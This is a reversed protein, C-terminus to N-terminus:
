LLLAPIPAEGESGGHTVRFKPHPLSAESNLGSGSESTPLRGGREPLLGLGASSRCPRTSCPAWFGSRSKAAQSWRRTERSSFRLEMQKVDSAQKSQPCFYILFFIFWYCDSLCCHQGLLKRGRLALFFDILSLVVWMRLGKPRVADKGEKRQRQKTPNQKNTEIKIVKAQAAQSAPSRPPTRPANVRNSCVWSTTKFAGSLRRSGVSHAHKASPPHSCSTRCSKGKPVPRGALWFPAPLLASGDEDEETLGARSKPRPSLLQAALWARGRKRIDGPEWRHVSATNKLNGSGAASGGKTAKGACGSGLCEAM